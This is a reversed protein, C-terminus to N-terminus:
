HSNGEIFDIAHLCGIADTRRQEVLGLRDVRSAVQNGALGREAPHDSRSVVHSVTIIPKAKDANALTVVLFCGGPEPLSQLDIGIVGVGLVLESVEGLCLATPVLGTAVIQHSKEDVWTM